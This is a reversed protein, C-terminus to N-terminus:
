TVAANSQTFVGNHTLMGRAAILYHQRCRARSLLASGAAFPESVCWPAQPSLKRQATGNNIDLAFRRASEMRFPHQCNALRVSRTAGTGRCRLANAFTPTMRPLLVDAPNRALTDCSVSPM